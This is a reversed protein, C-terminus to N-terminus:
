THVRTIRPGIGCVIEYSITDLRRAWDDATIEADGQRGLLVVEDGVAVDLDGCDVMLQDMTVTGAIPRRRGGVLVEGGVSALRRPVGDAYGIPVTAVTGATPMAYRLGYSLRDGGDRRQVHSVEARVSMAPRLDLTTDGATPSYGYLAIGARVLDYRAAPHRIGAASNAAHVVPPRPIGAERLAAISREFGALQAATDDDHAAEDAAALHTCFGELRLPPGIGKALAVVQDEGCGVRHMGTDVKLHVPLEVAGAAVCAADIGDRTYLTPTLRYHVVDAMEDPRPEALVLIPADIGARRIPVAEEVLAVALWTAGGELAATAVEVAGHGYANAKVVACLAAPASVEALVGANHRVAALDVEAWARRTRM